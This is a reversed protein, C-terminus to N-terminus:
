AYIKQTVKSILLSGQTSLKYQASQKNCFNILIYLSWCSNKNIVKQLDLSIPSKFPQVDLSCLQAIVCQHGNKMLKTMGNSIIVKSPKGIIGNLEYEKGEWSFKM